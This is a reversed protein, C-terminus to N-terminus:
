HKVLQTTSNRSEQEQGPQSRTRGENKEKYRGPNETRQRETPTRTRRKSAKPSVNKGSCLTPRTNTYAVNLEVIREATRLRVEKAYRAQIQLKTEQEKPM